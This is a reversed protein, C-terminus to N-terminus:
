KIDSKVTKFAALPAAFFGVCAAVVTADVIATAVKSDLLDDTETEAASPTLDGELRRPADIEEDLFYTLNRIYYYTTNFFVQKKTLSL